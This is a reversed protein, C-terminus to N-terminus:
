GKTILWELQVLLGASLEFSDLDAESIPSDPLEVEKDLLETIEIAFPQIKDDDVKQGDSSYKKITAVRIAEYGDLETQAAKIFKAVQFAKSAKFKLQALEKLAEVSTTVSKLKAKM